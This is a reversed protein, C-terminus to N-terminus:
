PFYICVPFFDFSTKLVLICPYQPHLSFSTLKLSIIANQAVSKYYHIKTMASHLTRPIIVFHGM